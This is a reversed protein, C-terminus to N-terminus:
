SKRPKILMIEKQFKKFTLMNKYVFRRNDFSEIIEDRLKQNFILDLYPRMSIKTKCQEGNYPAIVKSDWMTFKLDKTFVFISTPRILKGNYILTDDNEITNTFNSVNGMLIDAVSGKRREKYAETPELYDIVARKKKLKYRGFEMPIFEFMTLIDSAEQLTNGILFIKIHDKVSRVLNEMQQVFQYAIDGQSKQTKELQFEDLCIHYEMGTWVRKVKGKEDYQKVGNIILDKYIYDKDFLATGKDNAFTSLALVTCMKKGHDYVNNSRVYLDLDYKRRLDADVLKEARNALMKKMSNENLRIWTFPIKKKKWQNVFYEMVSYSKGSERAGLLIFFLAWTNGLISQLGYWESNKKMENNKRAVAVAKNLEDIDKFKELKEKKM